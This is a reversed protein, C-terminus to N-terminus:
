TLKYAAIGVCVPLRPKQRSVRELSIAGAACYRLVDHGDAEEDEDEDDEDDDNERDKDENEAEEAAM